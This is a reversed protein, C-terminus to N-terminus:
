FLAIITDTAFPSKVQLGLTPSAYLEPPVGIDALYLRGVYPKATETILGTKPLALTLTASAKICPSYPNGSTMDLGSPVDLALIPVNSENARNIWDAILPRPNGRIGYGILADLILEVSDLDPNQVSLGMKKIIQWQHKPIDKLRESKGILSVEVRAGWNHLHRAAVLGGGGNNGTGALVCIKKEAITGGLRRKALEALNRGANEMMQVLSIYWEEMMLRDVEIMQNTTLVAMNSLDLMFNGKLM